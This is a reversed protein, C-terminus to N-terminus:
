ASCGASRRSARWCRAERHNRRVVSSRPRSTHPKTVTSVRRSRPRFHQILGQVPWAAADGARLHHSGRDAQDRGLLDIERERAQGEEMRELVRWMWGRGERCPTCQGCSEHKYFYAIRRIAAMIDTSKDMVIIAATGLGVQRKASPTSTRADSGRVDIGAHVADLLRRSHGDASKGAM